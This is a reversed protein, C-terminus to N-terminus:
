RDVGLKRRLRAMAREGHRQVSSKSIGLVEAVELQTWEYSYLLVVVTRQRPPLGAVAQSLGPEVWPAREAPVTPFVVRRRRRMRRGRDRGVAYLYGVPSEMDHVREWHEWAYALAEAAAERGVDPGFRATLAHRLRVEHEKVFVSFAETTTEDRLM